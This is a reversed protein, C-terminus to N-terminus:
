RLEEKIQVTKRVTMHKNKIGSDLDQRFSVTRGAPKVTMGNREHITLLGFPIRSM